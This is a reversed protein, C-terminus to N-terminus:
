KLQIKVTSEQQFRIITVSEWGGALVQGSNRMLDQIERVPKGDIALIM